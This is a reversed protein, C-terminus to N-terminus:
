IRAHMDPALVCKSVEWGNRAIGKTLEWCKAGHLLCQSGRSSEAQTITSQNSYHPLLCLMSEAITELSPGLGIRNNM